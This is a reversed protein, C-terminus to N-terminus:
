VYKARHKRCLRSRKREDNHECLNEIPSLSESALTGVAGSYIAGNSVRRREATAEIRGLASLNSTSRSYYAAERPVLSGPYPALGAGSLLPRIPGPTETRVARPRGRPETPVSPTPATIWAWPM